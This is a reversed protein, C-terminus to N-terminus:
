PTRPAGSLGIRDGLRVGLGNLVRVWFAFAAAVQVIWSIAADDQGAARLAAVDAEAMEAPRETLKQVFRLVAVAGPDGADQPRRARLAALLAETRPGGGIHDRLNQGHHTAAYACGSLEAVWTAVMEALWPALPSDPDHLLARYQADAAILARPAHGMALYLNEVQGDPGAVAAYAEALAGTAAAQPVTAVWAICGGSM